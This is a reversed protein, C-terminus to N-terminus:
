GNGNKYFTAPKLSVNDTASNEIARSVKSMQTKSSNLPLKCVSIHPTYRKHFGDVTEEMGVGAMDCLVDVIAQRENAIPNRELILSAHKATNTALFGIHSVAVEYNSRLSEVNRYLEDIAETVALKGISHSRKTEITSVINAAMSFEPGIGRMVVGPMDGIQENVGLTMDVSQSERVNRFVALGSKNITSEDVVEGVGHKM